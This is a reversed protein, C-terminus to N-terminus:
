KKITHPATSLWKYKEVRVIQSTIDQPPDEAVVSMVQQDSAPESIIEKVTSSIFQLKGSLEVYEKFKEPKTNLEVLFSMVSGEMWNLSFSKVPAISEFFNQVDVYDKFNNIGVVELTIDQKVALGSSDVSFRKALIASIFSIVEDNIASIASNHLQGTYTVGNISFHWNASWTNSMSQYIRLMVNGNSAYRLKAQDIADPFLGWLDSMSLASKDVGDSFPFTVPLAYDTSVKLLDEKFPNPKITGLLEREGDAEILVWFMVEPRVNGWVPLNIQKMKAELAQSAFDVELLYPLPAPEFDSPDIQDIDKADDTNQAQSITNKDINPMERLTEDVSNEQESLLKQYNLYAIYRPNEKYSFSQVYRQAPFFSSQLNRDLVLDRHGSIKLLTKILAQNFANQRDSAQQSNVEVSGHFLGSVVASFSINSTCVLIILILTKFTYRSLSYVMYITTFFDSM